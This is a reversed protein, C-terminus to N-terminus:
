MSFCQQTYARNFCLGGGCSSNATKRWVACARGSGLRLRPTPPRQMDSKDM